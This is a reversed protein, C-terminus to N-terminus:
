FRLGRCGHSPVERTLNDVIGRRTRDDKSSGGRSSRGEVMDTESFLGIVGGSGTAM